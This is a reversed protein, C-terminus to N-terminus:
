EPHNPRVRVMDLADEVARKVDADTPPKRGLMLAGSQVYHAPLTNLAIAYVDEVCIRCGCFGTAGPLVQRMAAAVRPEQRNRIAELSFDEFSYRDDAMLAHAASPTMATDDSYGFPGLLAM